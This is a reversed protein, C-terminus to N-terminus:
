QAIPQVIVFLVVGVACAWVSFGFKLWNPATNLEMFRWGVLWVKACAIAIIAGITARNKVASVQAAGGLTGGLLTALVLVLWLSSLSKLSPHARTM